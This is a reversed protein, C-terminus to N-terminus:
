DIVTGEDDICRRERAEELLEDLLGRDGEMAFGGFPQLHHAHEFGAVEVEVVHQQEGAVLAVHGTADVIGRKDGVGDALGVAEGGDIVLYGDILVIEMTQQLTGLIDGDDVVVGSGIALRALHRAEHELEHHLARYFLEGETSTLRGQQARGFRDGLGGGHHLGELTAERLITAAETRGGDAGVQTTLQAEEVTVDAVELLGVVVFVVEDVVADEAVDEMFGALREVLGEALLGDAAHGEVIQELTTDLYLAGDIGGNALFEIQGQEITQLDDIALDDDTVHALQEFEITAERGEGDEAEFLGHGVVEATPLNTTEDIAEVHHGIRFSAFVEDSDYVILSARAAQFGQGIDVGDEVGGVDLFVAVVIELGEEVAVDHGAFGLAGDAWGQEEDLMGSGVVVVGYEFEAFFGNAVDAGHGLAIHLQQLM